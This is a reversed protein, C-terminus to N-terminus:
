REPAVRTSDLSWVRSDLEDSLWCQPARAKEFKLVQASEFYGGVLRVPTSDERFELYLPRHDTSRGGVLLYLRAGRRTVSSRWYRLDDADILARAVRGDARTIRIYSTYLDISMEQTVEIVYGPVSTRLRVQEGKAVADPPWSMLLEFYALASVLAGGLAVGRRHLRLGLVVCVPGLALLAIHVLAMAHVTTM